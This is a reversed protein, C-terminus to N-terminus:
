RLEDNVFINFDDKDPFERVVIITHIVGAELSNSVVM